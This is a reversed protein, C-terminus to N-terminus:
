YQGRRKEQNALVLGCLVVGARGTWLLAEAPEISTVWASLSEIGTTVLLVVIAALADQFPMYVIQGDPLTIPFMEITDPSTSCVGKKGDTRPPRRQRSKLPPPGSKATM